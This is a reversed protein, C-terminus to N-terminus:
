HQMKNDMVGQVDNNLLATNQNNSEYNPPEDASRGEELRSSQIEHHSHQRLSSSTYIVYVAHIFGPIGFLFTLLLNIIFDKSWLGQRLYISLPPIFCSLVILLTDNKTLSIYTDDSYAM